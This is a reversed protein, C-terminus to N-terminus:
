FPFLDIRRILVTIRLIILRRPYVRRIGEKREPKSLFSLNIGAQLLPNQCSSVTIARFLGM